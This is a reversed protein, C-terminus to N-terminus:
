ALWRVQGDAVDYLAGALAIQGSAALERLIPSEATIQALTLRVNAAAMEDVSADPGAATVAPQLKALLGTLHGLAVGAAAGQIAGCRTHGLVVILKSGVVQCAFELSGLIDPNVFNGAIRVTFLDGIGQDFIIEPPVRSDICGLVAAFPHQGASTQAVQEGLPQLTSQGASFRRSGDQLRRLAAAPTLAALTEQTLTVM